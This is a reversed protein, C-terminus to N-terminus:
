KRREKWSVEDISKRFNNCYSSLHMLIESSYCIEGTGVGDVIVTSDKLAVIAGHITVKGAIKTFDDAIILGKFVGNNVSLEADKTDNHIILIGAADDGFHLPGVDVTKYILARFNEPIDPDDSKFGDLSGPPLGLFAEPSSFRSSTPLGEEAIKERFPEFQNKRKPSVGNGGVQANGSLEFSDCTSVGYLGSTGLLNCLTDHDNGDVTINGVVIVKSHATIAGRVPPNNINLFPNVKAIVDIISQAGDGEGDSVIWLTDAWRKSTYNVTYFGNKFPQKTFYQLTTDKQPICINNIVEAYFHEKGGEAINLATISQKRAGSVRNNNRSTFFFALLTVNLILAIALVVIMASGRQNLQM